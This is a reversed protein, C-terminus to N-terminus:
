AKVAIWGAFNMWRWFCDVESFGARRLLTENWEATVPVLVGELSMSKRAIEEKSYGNRMKVGHYSDVQAADIKAGNGLVKEVIIFAGGKQTNEFVRAVINQRYNIPIFQLTLVSLTVSALGVDPFRERLDCREISVHPINAFRETAVKLMPESVDCGYYSQEDGYRSVADAIADGRSCGLDLIHSRHVRFRDTLESVAGRMVDYQPISRQLMDEFCATVTEDFQWRAM